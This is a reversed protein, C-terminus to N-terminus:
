SRNSLCEYIPRFSTSMTGLIEGKGSSLNRMISPLLVILILFLGAAFGLNIIFSWFDKTSVYTQISFLFSVVREPLSIQLHAHPITSIQNHLDHMNIVLDSSNWIGKMHAQIHKWTFDTNNYHLLIVCIWKYNTHCCVTLRLKTNQIQMSM